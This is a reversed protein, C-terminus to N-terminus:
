VRSDLEGIQLRLERDRVVLQRERDNDGAREAADREANVQNREDEILTRRLANLAKQFDDELSIRGTEQEQRRLELERLLFERTDENELAALVHEEDPAQDEGEVVLVLSRAIEKVQPDSLNEVEVAARLESFFAPQQVCFVIAQREQRERPGLQPRAVEPTGPGRRRPEDPFKLTDERVDLRESIRRRYEARTVPNEARAALQMLQEAARGKEVPDDLNFRTCVRELAYRFGEAAQELATRFTAPGDAAGLLECPDSGRGGPLTVVECALGQALCSEVAKEAANQGADDADFVLTLRDAQSRIMRVHEEGFATGMPAVVNEIGHQVCMMVDTYGEVLIAGGQERIADRAADLNYLVKGKRFVATEQTNIYKPQTDEDLSRGAFGVVRGQINRIPFMLRNRFWDYLEGERRESWRALGAADLARQHADTKGLARILANGAPAYGVGFAQITQESLGRQALYERAARGTEANM